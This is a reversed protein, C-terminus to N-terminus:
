STGTSGSRRSSAVADRLGHVAADQLRVQGPRERRQRPAHRRRRGGPHRSGRRRAVVPDVDGPRRPLSKLEPGVDSIAHFRVEPHREMFIKLAPEVVALHYLTVQQGTWIITFPHDPVSGPEAPRFLETDIATHIIRVEPAYPSFWDAIAQNGAIVVDVHRALRAMHEASGERPVWLADDVDFFRPGKTFRELTDRGWIMEKQILSADYRHSGLVSPVLAIPRAIRIATLWLPNHSRPQLHKYIPAIYEHVDIGYGALDPIFQRVRFRASTYNVGCSFAAIRM